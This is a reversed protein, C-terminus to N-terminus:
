NPGCSDKEAARDSIGAWSGFLVGVGAGFASAVFGAVQASRGPVFMQAAELVGAYAALSCIMATASIKPYGLSMLLGTGAYALIHEFSRPAPSRVLIDGPTLSLIALLFLCATGTVRILPRHAALLARVRVAESSWRQRTSGGRTTRPLEGMRKQQALTHADSSLPREGSPGILPDTM